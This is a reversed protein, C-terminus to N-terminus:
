IILLAVAPWSFSTVTNVQIVRAPLYVPEKSGNFYLRDAKKSEAPSSNSQPQLFFIWCINLWLCVLAKNQSYARRSKTYPRLM